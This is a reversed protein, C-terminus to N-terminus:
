RVEITLKNDGKLINIANVDELPLVIPAIEKSESFSPEDKFGNEIFEVARPNSIFSRFSAIKNAVTTPSKHVHRGANAFSKLNVYALVIESIGPVRLEEGAILYNLRKYCGETRDGEYQVMDLIKDLHEIDIRKM